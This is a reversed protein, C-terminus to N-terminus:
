SSAGAAPDVQLFPFLLALVSCSHRQAARAVLLVVTVPPDRDGPCKRFAGVGGPASPQLSTEGPGWLLRGLECEGPRRSRLCCRRAASKHEAAARRSLESARWTRVQGDCGWSSSCRCRCLACLVRLAALVGCLCTAPIGPSPSGM